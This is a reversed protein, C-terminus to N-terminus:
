ELPTQPLQKQEATVLEYLPLDPQPPHTGPTQSDGGATEEDGEGQLCSLFPFILM